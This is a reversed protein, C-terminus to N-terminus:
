LLEVTNENKLSNGKCIQIKERVLWEKRQAKAEETAIDM